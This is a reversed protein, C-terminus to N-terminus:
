EADSSDGKEDNKLARTMFDFLCAILGETTRKYVGTLYLSKNVLLNGVGMMNAYLIFATEVVEIDARISGDKMGDELLNILLTFLYEGDDCFRNGAKFRDLEVESFHHNTIIKFYDPYTRIFELYAEGFLRLKQYGTSQTASEIKRKSIENLVQFARNIVAQYLQEKSEFYIYITRKSYEAERAIEDMSANHFGKSFFVKEAANIIDEKRIEKLRNSREMSRM